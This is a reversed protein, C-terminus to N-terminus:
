LPLGHVHPRVQFKSDAGIFCVDFYHFFNIQGLLLPAADTQAWAFALKVPPFNGVKAQLAIARAEVAALNGALPISIRQASWNAGLQIGIRYPLVKVTSGSDLLGVASISSDGLILEFPLLPKRISLQSGPDTETYGYEAATIM